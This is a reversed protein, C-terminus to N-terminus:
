VAFFRILDVQSVVDEAMGGEGPREISRDIATSGVVLRPRAGARVLRHISPCTRVRMSGNIQIARDPSFWRSLSAKKPNRPLTAHSQGGGLQNSNRKTMTTTEEM